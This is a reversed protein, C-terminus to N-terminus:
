KVKRVPSGVYTGSENIDKIVVSGAGIIVESAIYRGQIVQAGTGIEVCKNINVTGSIHVGPYVTVCDKIDVDHGITCDLNLIVHKGINIDVTLINGACIITGSGIQIRKSCIVSPDILTAFHINNNNANEIRGIIKTRVKASGIACVLYIDESSNLVSEVAGVVRYEGEFSGTKTEDDDLFGKIEWTPNKENIREVLWAVERGFGGAGIIYLKKM